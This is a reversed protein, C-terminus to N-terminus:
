EQRGYIRKSLKEIENLGNMLNMTFYESENLFYYGYENNTKIVIADIVRSYLQGRYKFWFVEEEIEESHVFYQMSVRFCRHLFEETFLRKDMAILTYEHYFRNKEDLPAALVTRIDNPLIEILGVIVECGDYPLVCVFSNELDVTGYIGNNLLFSNVNESIAATIKRVEVISNLEKETRNKCVELDFQKTEM